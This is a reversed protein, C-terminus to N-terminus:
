NDLYRHIDTFGRWALFRESEKSYFFGIRILRTAFDFRAHYADASFNPLFWFVAHHLGDGYYHGMSSREAWRVKLPSGLVSEIDGIRPANRYNRWTLYCANIIGRQSYCDIQLKEDGNRTSIVSFSLVDSISDAEILLYDPLRGYAEVIMVHAQKQTTQGPM